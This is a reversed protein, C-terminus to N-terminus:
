MEEVIGNGYLWVIMFDFYYAPCIAFTNNALYSSM